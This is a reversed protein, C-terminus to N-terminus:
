PGKLKNDIDQLIEAETKRIEEFNDQLTHFEKIYYHEPRDQKNNAAATYVLAATLLEQLKECKEQQEGPVSLYRELRQLIKFRAQLAKFIRLDFRYYRNSLSFRVIQQLKKYTNLDFFLNKVTPILNHRYIFLALRVKHKRFNQEPKKRVSLAYNNKLFRYTRGATRYSQELEGYPISLTKIKLGSLHPDPAYGTATFAQKEDDYGYILFDHVAGAGTNLESLYKYKLYIQIYRGRNLENKIFGVPDKLDFPFRRRRFLRFFALVGPFEFFRLPAYYCIHIFHHFLFVDVDINQGSLIGFYFYYHSYCDIVADSGFPLEVSM